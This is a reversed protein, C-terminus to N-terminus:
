GNWSVISALRRLVGPRQPPGSAEELMTLCEDISAAVGMGLKAAQRAAVDNRGRVILIPMATSDTKVDVCNRPSDDVHHTLRLANIAAGRTGAIVVVSPMDFGQQALWRQTQRQVTDGATAPRQTIFVVEWRHRLMQGHLRRVARPDTPKLTTWFDETSRIREWVARRRRGIEKASGQAPADAAIGESTPEAEHDAGPLASEGGPGFLDREIERFASEFDALVGDMDFGVRMM